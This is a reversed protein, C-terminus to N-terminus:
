AMATVLPAAAYRYNTKDDGEADRAAPITYCGEYQQRNAQSMEAHHNGIVSLVGTRV